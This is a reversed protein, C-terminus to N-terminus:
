KLKVKVKEAEEDFDEGLIETCLDNIYEMNFNSCGEQNKIKNQSALDDNYDELKYATYEGQQTVIPDLEYETIYTEGTTADKEISVKAMGGIVRDRKQQGSVYNGLSYYVLMEHGEDNTIMEINELVHPHTGIVLDVGLDSFLKTYKEQLSDPVYQYETGWHPLVVVFDALEKAKTIDRTVTEEDLLNVLYPKDSPLPIGNTGYTYNLLAIKFGNQEYIQITEKEEENSNIGLVTIEPYNNKWFNITNDVAKFGKDITHNTAHLIVDFGAKAEADGIEQPSNFCPYSSIGLETGGLITEQNVIAIEAENIDNQINTFFHDYNLSGDVQIGSKYVPQHILMDGIMLLDIHENEPTPQEEVEEIIKEVNKEIVRNMDVNQLNDFNITKTTINSNGTLTSIDKTKTSCSTLILSSILLAEKLLKKKKINM